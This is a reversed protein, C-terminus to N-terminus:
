SSTINEEPDASKLPYNPCGSLAANNVIESKMRSIEEDSVNSNRNLFRSRRLLSKARCEGKGCHFGYNAMFTCTENSLNTSREAM